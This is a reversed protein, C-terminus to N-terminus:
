NKQFICSPLNKLIVPDVEYNVMKLNGWKANLFGVM